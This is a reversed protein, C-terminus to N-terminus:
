QSRLCVPVYVCSRSRPAYWQCQLLVYVSVIYVIYVARDNTLAGWRLAGGGGVHWSFGCLVYGTSADGQARHRYEVTVELGKPFPRSSSRMSRM